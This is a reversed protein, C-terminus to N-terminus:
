VAAARRLPIRLRRSSPQIFTRAPIVVASSTILTVCSNQHSCLISTDCQDLHKHYDRDDTQKSGHCYRVKHSAEVLGFDIRRANLNNIEFLGKGVTFEVDSNIRGSLLTQFRQMRTGRVNGVPVSWIQQFLNREIRPSMRVEISKGALMSDLRLD